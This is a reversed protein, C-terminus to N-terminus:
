PRGRSNNQPAGSSLCCLGAPRRRTFPVSAALVPADVAFKYPSECSRRDGGGGSGGVVDEKMVAAITSAGVRGDAATACSGWAGGASGGGGDLWGMRDVMFSPYLSRAAAPGNTVARGTRAGMRSNGNSPFPPQSCPVIDVARRPRCSTPRAPASGGAERRAHGGDVGLPMPSRPADAGGGKGNPHDGAATAAATAATAGVRVGGDVPAAAAATTAASAAMVATVAAAAAAAAAARSLPLQGNRHHQQLPQGGGGSLRCLRPSAARWPVPPDPHPLLLRLVTPRSLLPYPAPPPAALLALPRCLPRPSPLPPHGSQHHGGGDCAPFPSAWGRDRGQRCGVRRVLTGGTDHASRLPLSLSCPTPAPGRRCLRSGDGGNATSGAPERQRSGDLVPWTGFSRSQGSWSRCVKISTCYLVTGHGRVFTSIRSPRARASQLIPLPPAHSHDPLLCCQSPRCPSYGSCAAFDAFCMAARFAFRYKNVCAGHCNRESPLWLMM